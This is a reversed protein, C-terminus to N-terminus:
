QSPPQPCPGGSTTRTRIEENGDVVIRDTSKFFTLTRGITERCPEVVKVPVSPSGSMVYREDETHYTLRTGTAVRQDIRLDIADYGELREMRTEDKALVVVIRDARLDGQPGSLQAGYSPADPAGAPPPADPALPASPAAPAKPPTRSVSAIPRKLGIYMLRRAADEYRIEEARGVSAADGLTLTSRASGVASLNGKEQDITITEGRIATEGQWLQAGGTYVAHGPGGDYKLSAASVNAPQEKKLLGPTKASGQLLTKVTGSANMKRGELTLDIADAEIAIQEDAVRPRSRAGSEREAGSLRLAGKVPEYRAEAAAARLGKEEFQVNGIFVAHSIADGDLDVTLARARATRPPNEGAAEERYEVDGTFRASTMGKGAAGTADLTRSRVRRAAGGGSAPLDLQVQDRGTASTVAGDPALAITLSGGQMQRGPGGGTGKLAIAGTGTLVVREITQGDDAYTMDIDRASMSDFATSGGAVQARGRLEIATLAEENETLRATARDADITQEGRLAHVNRELALYDQQRALTATGASFAGTTNGGQDVMVVQARDGITLVDSNKDYTMGVGTGSMLGKKFSVSGPTRVIADSERFSATATSLEFGDSAVLKVNGTLNIERTKENALAETGTILFDRGQKEKVEIRVGFLKSDGNEYALQRDFTVVFDQRTGTLRNMLGRATEIVAKPDARHPAPAAVPQEREGIAFFVVGAFAIGFVAIGLRARKQWRM